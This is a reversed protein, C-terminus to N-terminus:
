MGFSMGGTIYLIPGFTVDSDKNGGAPQTIFGLEAILDNEGIKSFAVEIFGGIDLGTIDDGGFGLDITQYGIAIGPRIRVNSNRNIHAKLTVGYTNITAKEEYAGTSARLYFVGASLKEALMTELNLQFMLGSDTDYYEDPPDAYMEGEMLLGAKISVNSEDAIVQNTFIICFLLFLLGFCSNNRLNFCDRDELMFVGM